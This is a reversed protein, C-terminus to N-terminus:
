IMLEMPTSASRQNGDELGCLRQSMMPFVVEQQTDELGLSRRFAWERRSGYRGSASSLRSSVPQLRCCMLSRSFMSPLDQLDEVM